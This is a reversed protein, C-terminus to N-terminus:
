IYRVGCFCENNDMFVPIIPLQKIIDRLKMQRFHKSKFVNIGHKDNPTIFENCKVLKM